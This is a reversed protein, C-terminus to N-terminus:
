KLRKEFLYINWINKSFSFYHTTVTTKNTNNYEILIPKILLVTTKQSINCFFIFFIRPQRKVTIQELLILLFILFRDFFQHMICRANTSIVLTIIDFIVFNYVSYVHQSFFTVVNLRQPHQPQTQTNTYLLKYIYINYFKM